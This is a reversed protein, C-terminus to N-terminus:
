LPVLEYSSVKIGWPESAKDVAEVITANVTEREEFTKDLEMKGIVSRM